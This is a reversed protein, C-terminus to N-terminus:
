RYEIYIYIYMYTDIRYINDIYLIFFLRWYVQGRASRCLGNSPM